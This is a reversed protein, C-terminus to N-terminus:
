ADASMAGCKTWKTRFQISVDFVPWSQGLNARDRGINCLLDDSRPWTGGLTPWIHGSTLRSQADIERRVSTAVEASDPVRRAESNHRHAGSRNNPLLTPKHLACTHLHPCLQRPSCPPLGSGATCSRHLRRGQTPLCVGMESEVRQPKTPRQLNIEFVRATRVARRMLIPTGQRRQGACRRSFGGGHKHTCHPRLGVPQKSMGTREVHPTRGPAFSQPLEQTRDPPHPHTEAIEGYSTSWSPRGHGARLVIGCINARVLASLARIHVITGKKHCRIKRPATKRPGAATRRMTDPGRFAAGCGSGSGPLHVSTWRRAGLVRKRGVSRVEPWGHVRGMMSM